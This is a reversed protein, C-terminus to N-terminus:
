KLFFTELLIFILWGGGPMTWIRHSERAGSAPSPNTSFPALDSPGLAQNPPRGLSPTEAQRMWAPTQATSSSGCSNESLHIQQPTIM